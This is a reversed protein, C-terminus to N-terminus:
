GRGAESVEYNLILFSSGALQAAALILGIALGAAPYIVYAPTARAKRSRKGRGSLESGALLVFVVGLASPLAYPSQQYHELWLSPYGLLRLRLPKGGMMLPKAQIDEPKVAAAGTEQDTRENADGRTIFGEENNGSVVRHIVAAQGGLSGGRPRFIVIDGLAVESGDVPYVIAADGRQLLPYMSNSRIPALLFPYKLIATGIASALALGVVLYLVAQVVINLTRELVASRERCGVQM